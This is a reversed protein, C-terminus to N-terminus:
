KVDVIGVASTNNKVYEIWNFDKKFPPPAVWNELFLPKLMNNGDFKIGFLEWTEREHMSANKWIGSITSIKPDNRPIFTSVKIYINEDFNHSIFYVEFLAKKIWDVASITLLRKFGNESLYSATSLYDTKKVKTFLLGEKSRKISFKDELLRSFDKKM